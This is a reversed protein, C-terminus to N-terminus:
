WHGCVWEQLDILEETLDGMIERALLEKVRQEARSSADYIARAGVSVRYDVVSKRTHRLQDLEEPLPMVPGRVTLRGLREPVSVDYRIRRELHLFLKLQTM